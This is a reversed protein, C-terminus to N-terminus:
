DEDCSSTGAEGEKRHYYVLALCFGTACATRWAQSLLRRRLRRVFYQFGVASKGIACLGNHERKGLLEFAQTRANYAVAAVEEGLLSCAAQALSDLEFVRTNLAFSISYM